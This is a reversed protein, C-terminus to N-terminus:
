KPCCHLCVRWETEGKPGGASPMVSFVVVNRRGCNPCQPSVRVAPSVQTDADRKECSDTRTTMTNSERRFLTAYTTRTRQGPNHSSEITPRLERVTPVSAFLRAWITPGVACHGGAWSVTRKRVSVRDSTTYSIKTTAARDAMRSRM